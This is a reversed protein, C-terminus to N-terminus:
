SNVERYGLKVLQDYQMSPKLIGTRWAAPKPFVRIMTVCELGADEAAIETMRRNHWCSICEHTGKCVACFFRESM